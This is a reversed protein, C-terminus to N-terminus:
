LGKRYNPKRLRSRKGLVFGKRGKCSQPEFQKLMVSKPEFSKETILM